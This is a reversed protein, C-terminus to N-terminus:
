CRRTVSPVRVAGDSASSCRSSAWARSGARRGPRRQRRPPQGRGDVVHRLGRADAPARDEPVERGPVRQEDGHDPGADAAVGLLDRSRGVPSSRRPHSTSSSSTVWRSFARLPRTKQSRTPTRAASRDAPGRSPRPPTGPCGCGTRPWRSRASTAPARRLTARRRLPQGVGDRHLQGAEGGLRQGAVEAARGVLDRAHRSLDDLGGQRGREGCFGVLRCRRHRLRQRRPIPWRRSTAGGVYDLHTCKKDACKGAADFQQKIDSLPWGQGCIPDKNNCLSQVPFSSGSPTPTTASHCAICIWALDAARIPRARPRSWGPQVLM